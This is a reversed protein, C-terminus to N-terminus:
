ISRRQAEGQGSSIAQDLGGWNRLGKDDREVGAWLPSGFPFDLEAKPEEELGPTKGTGESLEQHPPPAPFVAQSRPFPSHQLVGSRQYKM